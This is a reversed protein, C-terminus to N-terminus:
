RTNSLFGAYILIFHGIYLLFLKTIDIMATIPLANLFIEFIDSRFLKPLNLFHKIIGHQFTKVNKLCDSNINNM